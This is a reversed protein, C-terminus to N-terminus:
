LFRVPSRDTAAVVCTAEAAAAPTFGDAGTQPAIDDCEEEKVLSTSRRNDAAPTSDIM